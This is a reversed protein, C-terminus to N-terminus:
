SVNDNTFLFVSKELVLIDSKILANLNTFIVQKLKKAILFVHILLLFSISAVDATNGLLFRVVNPRSLNSRPYNM